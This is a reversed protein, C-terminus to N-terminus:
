KASILTSATLKSGGPLRALLDEELVQRREIRLVPDLELGVDSLREARTMSRITGIPLPCRPRITAGGRVPLVISSCFMALLM